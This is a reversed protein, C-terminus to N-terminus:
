ECWCPMTCRSMLGALTIMVSEPATLTISKPMARASCPAWDVIVWVPMTMPVGCCREGSCASPLATSWRESRYAVPRGSVFQERQPGREGTLGRERHDVLM